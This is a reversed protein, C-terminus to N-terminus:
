GFAGFPSCPRTFAFRRGLPDIVFCMQSCRLECSRFIGSGYCYTKCSCPECLQAPVVANQTMRGIIGIFRYRDTPNYLAADASFGPINM